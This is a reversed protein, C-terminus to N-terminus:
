LMYKNNSSGRIGMAILNYYKAGRHCINGECFETRCKNRCLNDNISLRSVRTSVHSVRSFMDNIYRSGPQGNRIYSTEM